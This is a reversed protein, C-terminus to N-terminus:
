KGASAALPNFFIVTGQERERKLARAISRAAQRAIHAAATLVDPDSHEVTIIKPRLAVDLRCRKDLGQRPGIAPTVRLRVRGIEKGFRAFSFALRREAKEREDPTLRVGRTKIEIRM